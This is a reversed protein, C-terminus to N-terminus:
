FAFRLGGAISPAQARTVLGDADIQAAVTAGAINEAQLFLWLGTGAQYSLMADLTVFGDLTRSALDDEFQKAVHRLAGHVAWRPAPRWDLALALVHKPSQALRKGDLVPFDRSTTVRARVYLHRLVVAVDDRPSLRLASEVGDALIRDINRRQRLSGGAPVFGAPPFVGPGLALTVNGVGDELWNRFYDASLDIGAAGTWRVGAELGYLREPELLPNAETIDNGVRFPRFFENLSPLRFGSYGAMRLVWDAAAEYRLGLRGNVLVDERPAIADDRLVTGDALASERLVGDFTRWYDARVGGALALGPALSGAYELWAGVLWQDGGAKRLRTFGAGLNRFLENTAGKLRRADAGLEVVGDAFVPLRMLAVAGYGRAPVSFQDLVPRESARAADVASFRNSFDRDVAYATFQASIGDRGREAVLRVSADLGDTANRSLA